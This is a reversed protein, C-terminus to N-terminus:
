GGAPLYRDIPLGRSLQLWPIIQPRQGGLQQIVPEPTIGPPLPKEKV